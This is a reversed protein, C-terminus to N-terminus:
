FNLNFGLRGSTTQVSAFGAQDTRSTFANAYFIFFRNLRYNINGGYNSIKRVDIAESDNYYLSVSVKSGPTWFATYRQSTNTRIDDVAYTLTADFGLYPRAQWRTTLDATLRQDVTLIGESDFWSLSFGAGLRWTSLPRTNLREVWRLVNQTFQGAIDDIESYILESDLRLEDYIDLGVRARVSDTVRIGSGQTSEDRRQLTLAGHVTPMPSWDLGTAFQRERRTLKPTLDQEFATVLYSFDWRLSRSFFYSFPLNLSFQRIEQSAAGAAIDVDNSFYLYVNGQLQRTPQVGFNGNFRLTTSKAEDRGIREVDLLARMETVFVGTLVNPSINVAKFYRDTTEPLLLTYRLFAVDFSSTVGTLPEWNFNDPSHYVQWVVSPGSPTDVTIELRTVRNTVGLDLGINRFTNAGGIEIPPVVPTTTDGDILGPSPDLPGIEPSPDIVFLGAVAPVVQALMSGTPADEQQRVRSAWGEGYFWMRNDASRKGYNARLLVREQDLTFGTTNNDIKSDIFSGSASWDRAAHIVDFQLVTSDTDRGVLQPDAVNSENRYRLQYQPGHKPRWELIALASTADFNDTPSTGTNKRENYQFRFNFTRRNYSLVAEPSKLQRDFDFEDTSTKNYRYRYALDLRFWPGFPQTLSLLAQQELVDTEVPGVETNGGFMRVNGNFKVAEVSSWSTLLFLVLTAVTASRADRLKAGDM